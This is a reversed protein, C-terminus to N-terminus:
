QGLRGFDQPPWVRFSVKGLILGYPISGFHRSDNSAFINDGQIWVHGKPVVISHSRYSRSPDVLFTVKEGEVGVVRKTITKRPNEPSRVLVVDGPSVKGLRHSLKEVLLVDGTFNLTPLMSAGHVLTPSCIYTDTIHLLSFFQAFLVSHGFVEKATSRWRSAYQILKSSIM